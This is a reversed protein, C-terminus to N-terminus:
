PKLPLQVCGKVPLIKHEIEANHLAWHAHLFTNAQQSYLQVTVLRHLRMNSPCIRTRHVRRFCCGLLDFGSDGRGRMRRNVNGAAIVVTSSPLM